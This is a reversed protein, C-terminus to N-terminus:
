DEQPTLSLGGNGPAGFGFDGRFPAKKWCCATSDTITHTTSQQHMITITTTVIMIVIM